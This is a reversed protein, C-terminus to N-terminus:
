LTRPMVCGRKESLQTEIQARGQFPGANILVVSGSWIRICFRRVSVSCSPDHTGAQSQIRFATRMWWSQKWENMKHVCKVAESTKQSIHSSVLILQSLALHHLQTLRWSRYPMQLCALFCTALFDPPVTTGTRATCVQFPLYLPFVWESHSAYWYKYDVHHLLDNEPSIKQNTELKKGWRTPRNKGLNSISPRSTM